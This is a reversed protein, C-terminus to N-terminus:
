GDANELATEQHFQEEFSNFFQAAMKKSTSAVLRQGLQALKGGIAANVQYKLLTKGNETDTLTVTADGKAFGAIGGSGQGTIRYSEPPRLDCLEVAGKFKAKVPGIKATVVATFETDSLKELEQCGPICSKLIEADNLAQWVQERPAPLLYEESMEM